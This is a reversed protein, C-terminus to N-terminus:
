GDERPDPAPLGEGEHEEMLHKSLDEQSSFTKGCMHCTATEEDGSQSERENM